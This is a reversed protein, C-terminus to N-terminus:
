FKVDVGISYTKVQPYYGGNGVPAEVDYGKWFNDLTLINQGSVYVRLKQAKIKKLVTSPFTYGLQINKLRMYAADRMWFSSTQENNTENFAFRPFTADTNDPTWRDKHQEQVTGGMLFPMIGQDRILGDAKGVGQIFIGLDFNKYQGNFTFGFTYRPITEGIIKYDSSNIISDNNQDVYKIDGPAITGYQTAHKYTGDENFDDETIFGDAELGYISWMPYGEHNVTTGTKNVGKLDLVKNKVDSVNIGIEYKFENDWDVYNIGLDWGRNEVKGANQEPANMGIIRPIDLALLIDDTVKYYYEAVVNIKELLTIDLGVNSATTTEWSIETNALDTIGAGSAVQKDFVYKLGLNVDSSFPYTGIDQNGLQGWSARIKLNNVVPRLSEFFSEESIRWGASFSPFFGWKRGQVFRSSGDQRFNAEFLYKEKFNYNLRGFFSQLAWESAWGYSKQNEEGGSNLVPYDPFPFSERYGSLGDNRYDEQQYGLLLKLGHNGFTKDFTATSRLNNHLNKNHSTTLTSKQPAKYSESGDWRYTQIAKVFDSVNSQWYNPSYSLDATFWDVPKYKLVLNMTFSPSESKNLGGDKTFAVPNDGNWGEGWSGDSLVATQNAPIRGSWHIASSTGRSPETLLAQKIHADIQASFSNTLQMDTNIRLTYRKFDTNSMIGGQDLYGLSALVRVKESGGNMTLFHSQMLANETLVQDYWDTDPYKDPNTAMNARYEEIYEDSYLPSKGVNVYAENTLLMHDIAGVMNPIDTPRQTGIYGNYSVSLVDKQARKTTVLIVGNAARSGYISASAADKLISVSEILTPDINNIGMEIGDVLVLPASNGLTTKGRISITGGDRGPQGNRQTVVVGPAVGQLVMSTQAVQRRALDEGAVSAIAGTLNVKKQSGYGVVVVEEVGLVDEQMTIDITSRSNVEVEQTLLGVFSFILIDSESQLTLSYNGNIDTVAGATTGKIIVTVGPLPLGNSDTVKGSVSQQQRFRINESSGVNTIVVYRDIIEYAVDEPLTEKLISELTANKMDVQIKKNPNLQSNSFAFRFESQEEIKQFLEGFTIQSYKLTLKTSQSYVSASVFMNSILLIITTLKMIRLIKRFPLIEGVTLFPKRKKM